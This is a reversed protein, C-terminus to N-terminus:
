VGKERDKSDVRGKTQGDKNLLLHSPHAPGQQLGPSMYEEMTTKM